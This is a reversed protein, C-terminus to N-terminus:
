NKSAATRKAAGGKERALKQRAKTHDEKAIARRESASPTETQRPQQSADDDAHTGPTKPM